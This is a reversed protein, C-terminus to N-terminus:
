DFNKVLRLVPQSMQTVSIRSAAENLHHSSLHAYRLVMEFCSWGGLQQLEQLSTGHQVHWSAWTHRLDHWRFNEIASRQLAKMWAQTTCKTVPKGKYVFVYTSDMARQKHLINLADENLPVPIGKKGKAESACITVHKRLLDVNKWKLNRVNAARLGTSLTFSAMAKLHEPLQALLTDAEERTLWRIRKNNEPQMKIAPAKDLWEWEHEARNLVARLTAMLRNVTSISVGTKTKEDRIYGIIKRDIKKLSYGKLYPNLWRFHRKDDEISRKHQMENLWRVVAEMWTHEPKSGLHSQSWLDAKLKDHLQQAKLRDETRASVRVRTGNHTFVIWWTKNRKWLPM